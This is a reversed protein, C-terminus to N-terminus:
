EPGLADLAEEQTRFYMAAAVKEKRVRAIWYGPQVHRIGARDEYVVDGKTLVWERGVGRSFDERFCINQWARLNQEFWLALGEHGVYLHGDFALFVVDEAVLSFIDGPFTGLSQASLSRVIEVPERATM